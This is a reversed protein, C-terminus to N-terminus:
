ANLDFRYTIEVIARFIRGDPKGEGTDPPSVTEVVVGSGLDADRFVARIEDAIAIARTDGKYPEAMAHVFVTGRERFARTGTGTGLSIPEEDAGAFDLSVWENPRLAPKENVNITEVYEASVADSLIAAALHARFAARVVGSSM